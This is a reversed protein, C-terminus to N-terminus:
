LKYPLKSYVWKCKNNGTYRKFCISGDSIWRPFGAGLISNILWSYVNGESHGITKAIVIRPTFSLGSVATSSVGYTQEPATTGNAYKKGSPVTGGSYYGAPVTVGLALNFTGRNPMAGNIQGTDVTATKGSLLDFTTANGGGGKGQVIFNGSTSEYRLTYPPNLKLGGSTIANGLSDKIAKAGLGNVNLTSAGTSSINIKAVIGLGDEYGNPPAPNLTVAFTNATGTTTAYAPHKV